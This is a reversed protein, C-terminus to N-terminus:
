YVVVRSRMMGVDTVLLLTYIGPVIGLNFEGRDSHVSERHLVRGTQDIVMATGDIFKNDPLEFRINGSTPNPFVNITGIAPNIDSTSLFYDITNITTNTTIPLNYDFYIYVKNEIVTGHPLGPQTEISFNIFGHSNIEDTTSDVLVCPDFVFKLVGTSSLTYNHPMSVTGLRFTLPDLDEDLTDVVMIYFATDNGTNQFAIRYNLVSDSPTIAGNTGFGNPQVYKENPDISGRLSDSITYSNDNQHADGALSWAFATNKFPTNTPYMGSHLIFHIQRAEGPILNTFNWSLSNAQLTDPAIMSSLFTFVTDIDFRVTGNMTTSGLNQYNIIVGMDRNARISPHTFDISLDNVGPMAMLGFSMTSSAIGGTIIVNNTACTQMWNVPIGCQLQYSGDPLLFYFNGNVQSHAYQGQASSIVINNLPAELTDRICNANVDYFVEGTLNPTFPVYVGLNHIQNILTNAPFNTYVGNTSFTTAVCIPSWKTVAMKLIGLGPVPDWPRIMSPRPLVNNFPLSSEVIYSSIRRPGMGTTFHFTNSTAPTGSCNAVSNSPVSLCSQTLDIIPSAVPSYSSLHTTGPVAWATITAGAPFFASDFQIGVQLTRFYFDGSTAELYIDFQYVNPSLLTDNTIFCNFTQGKMVGNFTFLLIFILFTSKLTRM